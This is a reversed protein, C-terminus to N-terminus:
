FVRNEQNQTKKTAAFKKTAAAVLAAPLLIKSSQCFELMPPQILWILHAHPSYCHTVTPVMYDTVYTEHGIEKIWIM